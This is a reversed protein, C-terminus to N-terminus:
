SYCVIGKSDMLGWMPNNVSPNNLTDYGRKHFLTELSELRSNSKFSLM